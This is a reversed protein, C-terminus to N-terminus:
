SILKEFETISAFFTRRISSCSNIFCQQKQSKVMANSLYDQRSRITFFIYTDISLYKLHHILVLNTHTM